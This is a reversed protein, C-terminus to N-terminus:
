FFIQKNKGRSYEFFKVRHKGLNLLGDVVDIDAQSNPEWLIAGRGECDTQFLGFHM